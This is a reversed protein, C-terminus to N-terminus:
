RFVMFFTRNIRRSIYHFGFSFKQGYKHNMPKVKCTHLTAKTKMPNICFNFCPGIEISQSVNMISKISHYNFQFATICNWMTGILLIISWMASVILHTWSAVPVFLLTFSFHVSVSVSVVVVVYLCWSRTYFTTLIM